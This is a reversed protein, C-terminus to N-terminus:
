KTIIIPDGETVLVTVEFHASISGDETKYTFDDSALYVEEGGLNIMPEIAIVQGVSLKPGTGPRGFNPVFPEEHVVRGVGHGGLEKVIGYGHPTIFDEVAAGIDGIRNGVRSKAVARMLSEETVELLKKAEPSVQGVPLTVAMDTFFGQHSLGLDLGVIDGEKLTREGPLGHVVEDNVSVCLAAPYPDGVGGPRYGLFAPVDGGEEILRLALSNLYGTTIGPSVERILMRMITALRTGSEKLLAVEKEDKIISM